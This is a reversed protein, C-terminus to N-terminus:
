RHASAGPVAARFRHRGPTARVRHTSRFGTGGAGNRGARRWAELGAAGPLGIAAMKPRDCVWAEQRSGFGADGDAIQQGLMVRHRTVRRVAEVQATVCETREMIQVAITIPWDASLVMFEAQFGAVLRGTGLQVVDPDACKLAAAVPQRCTAHVVQNAPPVSIGIELSASSVYQYLVYPASMQSFCPADFIAAHASALVAQLALREM